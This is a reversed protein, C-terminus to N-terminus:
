DAARRGLDGNFRLDPRKKSLSPAGYVSAWPYSTIYEAVFLHHLKNPVVIAQVKGLADLSDRLAPDLKVPSHLFLRGDGLRICTMRTGIDVGVYPLKFPRDVVWLNPALNRPAREM